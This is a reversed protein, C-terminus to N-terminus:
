STPEVASGTEIIGEATRRSKIYWEAINLFRDSTDSLNMESTVGRVKADVLYTFHPQYLLVAPVLDAFATQFKHYYTISKNIDASLRATELNNDIDKDAIVSLALGPDQVQSSHWYAYPDSDSGLNQGFILAEYNRPRIVEDVLKDGDVPNLTVSVGIASWNAVLIDAIKQQVPDAKYSLTFTLRNNDKEMIGDQDIDKWGARNLTDRAAVFDLQYKKIDPLHGWFGPLIPSDVVTANGNAAEAVIKQKDTAFALAQRVAKDALAVNGGLTNFFVAKYQPLSYIYTKINPLGLNSVDDLVSFSASTVTGSKMAGLLSKESDFFYIVVKDIFPREAYYNDNAVLNLSDRSAITGLVRYPGSGIPQQNNDPNGIETVPLHAFLHAPIIGVTAQSLFFTSPNPLSFKVTGQDVATVEIGQWASKLAGTYNENQIVQITFAVDGAVVKEGDHWKANDRLKFLYTKGKDLVEWSAALDPLFERGKGLKVLGSFVLRSVDRDAPNSDAYLPNIVQTRGVVGEIISGGRVPQIDASRGTAVLLSVGAIFIVGVLGAIVIKELRSLHSVFYRLFGGLANSLIQLRYLWRM